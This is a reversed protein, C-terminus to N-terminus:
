LLQAAALWSRLLSLDRRIDALLEPQDEPRPRIHKGYEFHMSIPGVFGIEKLYSFFTKFDVMGKGIPCFEPRWDSGQKLWSFDKVALM